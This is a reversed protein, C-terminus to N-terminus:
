GVRRHRLCRRLPVDRGRRTDRGVALDDGGRQQWLHRHGAPCCSSRDCPTRPTFGPAVASAIRVVGGHSKTVGISAHRVPDVDPAALCACLREDHTRKDALGCLAADALLLGPSCLGATCPEGPGGCVRHRGCAHPQPLLHLGHRRHPPLRRARRPFGRHLRVAGDVAHDPRWLHHRHLQRAAPPPCPLLPWAKSPWLKTSARARQLARLYIPAHQSSLFVMCPPLGFHSRAPAPRLRRQRAVVAQWRPLHLAFPRGLKAPDATSLRPCPLKGEGAATGDAYHPCRHPFAPHAAQPGRSCCPPHPPTPLPPLAHVLLPSGLRSLVATASPM